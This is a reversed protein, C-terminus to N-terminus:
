EYLRALRNTDYRFFYLLRLSWMKIITKIIGNKEWRRSSSTVTEAICVPRSYNLLRSSIAIDEMLAIEPYAGVKYFLERGVFLTQDGTVVGTLRSRINMCKEIVRFLWHHGSLRIDFRGWKNEINHIKSLLEHINDPLVTDAHLFLFCHGSALRAGTNMQISRSKESTIIKDCLSNSLLVTNDNSGGDVLVVEHALQRLLQLRNLCNIISDQENLTPIIISIKYAESKV